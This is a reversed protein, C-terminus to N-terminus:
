WPLGEAIDHGDLVYRGFGIKRGDGIGMVSGAKSAIELIKAPGYLEPTTVSLLAVCSWGIEFRPRYTPKPTRKMDGHRALRFDVTDWDDVGFSAFEGVPVLGERLTATAGGNSAIPSKFYKGADKISALVNATPIALAGDEGRWVMSEYEPRARPKRKAGPGAERDYAEIDMRNFLFPTVGRLRLTITYPLEIGFRQPMALDNEKTKTAM